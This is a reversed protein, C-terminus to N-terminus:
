KNLSVKGQIEDFWNLVLNIQRLNVEDDKSQTVVFFSGDPSLDYMLGSDVSKQQYGGVLLQPRGVVLSPTSQIPVSMLKGPSYYYLTKGDPGWLPRYAEDPSVAWRGGGEPFPKIYVQYVGSENSSYAMWKGDPSLSAQWEDFRTELFPKLAHDGDVQLTFIDSGGPGKPTRSTGDVDLILFKGDRSWDDVYSRGHGASLMTPEGSGDAQKVYVSYKGVDYAYYAIRKGDPSWAATKNVGGFTLKSLTNGPIDFIWIDADKGSQLTVAIRTGDPSM